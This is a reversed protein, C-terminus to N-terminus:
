RSPRGYKEAPPYARSGLAADGAPDDRRRRKSSSRDWNEDTWKVWGESFNGEYFKEKDEDNWTDLEWEEIELDEPWHELIEGSEPHEEDFFQDAVTGAFISGM